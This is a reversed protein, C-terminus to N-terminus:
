ERRRYIIIVGAPNRRISAYPTDGSTYVEVRDLETSSVSTLACTDAILTGDIYVTPNPQNQFSVNGRFAIQPCGGSDSVRISPIRTRIAQLANGSIDAGRIIIASGSSPQDTNPQSARGACAAM